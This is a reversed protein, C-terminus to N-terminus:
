RGGEQVLNSPSVFTCDDPHGCCLGADYTPAHPCLPAVEVGKRLSSLDPDALDNTADALGALGNELASRAHRLDRLTVVVRTEPRYHIEFDTDGFYKPEPLGDYAGAKAAFPKLAERAAKLAALAEDRQRTTAELQDLAGRGSELNRRTEAIWHSISADKAALEAAQALLADAAARCLDAANTNLPLGNIRVTQARLCAVLGAIDVGSM